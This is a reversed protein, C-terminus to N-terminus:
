DVEKFLNTKIGATHQLEAALAPSIEEAYLVHCEDGTGEKRYLVWRAPTVDTVVTHEKPPMGFSIARYSIFWKTEIM